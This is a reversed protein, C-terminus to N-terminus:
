VDVVRFCTGSIFKVFYSSSPRRPVKLHVLCHGPSLVRLPAAVVVDHQLVVRVTQQRKGDRFACCRVTTTLLRFGIFTPAAPTSFGIRSTFELRSCPPSPAFLGNVNRAAWFAVYSTDYAGHYLEPAKRYTRHYVFCFKVFRLANQLVVVVTATYLLHVLFDANYLACDELHM